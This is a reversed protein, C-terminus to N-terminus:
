LLATPVRRVGRESAPRTSHLYRHLYCFRSGGRLRLLRRQLTRGMVFLDILPNFLQLTSWPLSGLCVQATPAQPEPRVTGDRGDCVCADFSCAFCLARVLCVPAALLAAPSSSNMCIEYRLAPDRAPPTASGRTPGTRARQVALPRLPARRATPAALVGTACDTLGILGSQSHNRPIHPHFPM